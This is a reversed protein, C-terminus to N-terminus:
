RRHAAIVELVGAGYRELKTSGVGPLASLELLSTPRNEAIGRLTADSFVVFDPAGSAAAMEARWACLEDWLAAEVPTACDDHRGLKREASTGLPADCIRCRRALATGRSRRRSAISRAPGLDTGPLPLFRSPARRPGGGHRTEAGSLHLWERARTVGVYLLRREEALADDSGALAFPISGEHVGIIAVADWELGKAAHLTSLTVGQGDPSHHSRAREALEAVLQDTGAGPQLRVFDAGLSALADWSEWRERMSGQGQPPEPSWGLGALVAQLVDAPTQDAAPQATRLARVAARVEPRDFFGDSGRTLYPIRADALAAEIVPSQAHIRYLVAMQSWPTGAAQVTTLWAAVGAAEAAESGAMGVVPAPGDARMARLDVRHPQDSMLDNALGVVQPTSRYDRRLTIRTARYRQHFSTLFSAQAGAFSHITQAPDGVVCIEESDGRWLDLLAQQLPSVDQYEDVVFHRYTRRVEGAIEPHDALLGATCLLIDDFDIVGRAAKAAEYHTLIQGVEEPSRGSVSRGRSGAVVPYEDPSVNSVKSWGIEGAVDRILGADPTLGQRRLAAAVLTARSSEVPPLETGFARPWFYQAQRLAASHFTRAQVGPVGLRHLRARLEGAARTTFTLALVGHPPFVGTAVGYAIRHTMARTKGTGAGALVVVPGELALAVQRQEPDLDALITEPDAQM